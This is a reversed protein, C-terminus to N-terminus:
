PQENCDRLEKSNRWAVRRLAVAVAFSDEKKHCLTADMGSVGQNQVDWPLVLLVEDDRASM